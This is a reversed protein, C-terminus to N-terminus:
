GTQEIQEAAGFGEAFEVAALGELAEHRAAAPGRRADIADRARAPLFTLVVAAAVAMVIAGVIVASSFAHVFAHRAADGVAVRVSAPLNSAAAIAGGVSDRANAVTSAPVRLADLRSSVAPRYASALVSGLVAVGLAGGMQRTTDNMASGVGAKTPPLSGMISETAPAMVLGMGSSIIILAVLLHPYGDAVPV